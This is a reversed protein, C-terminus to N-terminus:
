ILQLSNKIVKMYHNIKEIDIINIGKSNTVICICLKM